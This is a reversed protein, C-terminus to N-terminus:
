TARGDMGRKGKPVITKKNSNRPIANPARGIGAKGGPPKARGRGNAKDPHWREWWEWINFGM